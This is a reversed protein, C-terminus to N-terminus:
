PRDLLARSRTNSPTTGTTAKATANSAMNRNMALTSVGHDSELMDALREIAGLRDVVKRQRDGFAFEGDHDARRPRALRACQLHDIAQELVVAAADQEGSLFNAAEFAFVKAQAHAIGDLRDAQKWVPRDLLVDRGDGIQQAPRARARALAHGLQQLRELERGRQVAVAIRMLQGPSLLLPYANGTGQRAIGVHQQHVLREAREIGHGPVRQLLLDAPNMVGGALRDHQHRVVDVFRQAQRVADHQEIMTADHLDARRPLNQGTGGVVEDGIKDSATIDAELQEAEVRHGRTQAGAFDGVSRRHGGARAQAIRQRGENDRCTSRRGTTSSAPRGAPTM